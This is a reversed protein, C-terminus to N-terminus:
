IVVKLAQLAPLHKTAFSQAEETLTALCEEASMFGGGPRTLGVGNAELHQRIFEAWQEPRGLGQSRALLMQLHFPQVSLGGGTVPSALNHIRSSNMSGEILHRNLRAAGDLAKETVLSDQVSAVDGKGALVMVVELLQGFSIEQGQLDLELQGLSHIQRDALLELVLGYVEVPLNREVLAGSAKLAVSGPDTVLIVNQARLAARQEAAELRRPGKIWYDKRFQRNIVFDRASQQFTQDPIRSLIEVQQPLLNFLDFHDVYLASCAFSVKAPELWRAFEAFLMPHWDRNFYEHALYNKSQDKLTKIRSAAAPNLAAYGPSADILADVYGIASDIRNGIGAGPASMTEAHEMMLQRMPVMQGWGPQTNYSVYLVGGVRLRRRVFDVILSRNEDSVWSWIGHLGIFDFEPLDPRSCFDAFSQDFLHVSAGSAQALEQAFGAQAPNFDTGWWESASAVAHINTSVGFGFGLECCVRAAGRPPAFGANLLALRATFPNLERYCDYTYDIGKVYGDSWDPM